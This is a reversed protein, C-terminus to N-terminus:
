FAISDPDSYAGPYRANLEILQGVLQVASVIPDIIGRTKGAAKTPRQSGSINGELVCNALAYEAIPCPQMILDRDRVMCEFQFTAPGFAMITQPFPKMPLDTEANYHNGLQGWEHVSLQMGGLADYSIQQLDTKDKLEHLKQRILDYKISHDCVTVNEYTAWTELNRQYDRGEEGLERRIIWHHWRLMFKDGQHWGYCMSSLDFSKSFDISCYTKTTKEPFLPVDGQCDTWMDGQLWNMNRTTYRCCQFREFDALKGQAQYGKLMRRYSEIPIVHGLSPQAKIWTSEDLLDDDADLGFFASFTDLEDWQDDELALVAEQRRTYYPSDRGLDIGGPTTVSIMFSNLNKGLASVIKVLWDTKMESSEDVLYAIAKLGDLTSAKAAYTRVKGGSARCRMERETVEWLADAGNEKDTHDGWAKRAFGQASTYAQRAQQVTNALCVCDGGQYYSANHLMLTSALTTKGAGRAVEIFQSRYRRGGTATNKWCSAGTVWAQWPQLQIPQGSLEHGDYILLDFLMDEYANWEKWDFYVEPRDMDHLHRRCAQMINKNAPIEGAVVARPFEHPDFQKPGTQTESQSDTM